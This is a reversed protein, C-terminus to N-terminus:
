KAAVVVETPSDQRANQIQAEKEQKSTPLQIVNGGFGRAVQSLYYKDGYKHFVLKATGNNSTPQESRFLSIASAGKNRDMIVIASDSVSSIVYNGAPMEKQGVTFHFPVTAKAITQASTSPIIISLSLTLIALIGFLIPKMQKEKFTGQLPVLSFKGKADSELLRTLAAQEYVLVFRMRM